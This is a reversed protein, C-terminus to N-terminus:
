RTLRHAVWVVGPWIRPLPASSSPLWGRGPPWPRAWRRRLSGATPWRYWCWPTLVAIGWFMGQGELTPLWRAAGVLRLLLVGLAGVAVANARGAVAMLAVLGLIVNQQM